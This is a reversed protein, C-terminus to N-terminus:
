LREERWLGLAQYVPIDGFAFIVTDELAELEYATWGPMAIVDRPGLEFRDAGVTVRMRGEVLTAVLNHLARYPRTRFGKALWTLASGLTPMPWGGGPAQYRLVHGRWPDADQSAALQALAERSREYPWAFTEPASEVAPLGAGGPEERFGANLFGVLPVDLGDMWIVPEDGGGHEHWTMAPTVIFDGPRMYARSGDVATYAGQGEMVFRLASQSHRHPPATEGPLILQLGAYLTDTAQLAGPLGPNALVVVRREAEEASILRGAELLHGRVEDYAWTFPAARATPEAPALAALSEWLPALRARELQQYYGTMGAARAPGEATDAPAMM